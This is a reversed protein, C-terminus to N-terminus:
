GLYLYSPVLDQLLTRCSKFLLLIMRTSQSHLQTEGDKKHIRTSILYDAKQEVQTYAQGKGIVLDVIMNQVLRGIMYSDVLCMNRQCILQKSNYMCKLLPSMVQVSITKQYSSVVLRKFIKTVLFVEHITLCTPCFENPVEIKRYSITLSGHVCANICQTM